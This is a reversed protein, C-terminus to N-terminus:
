YFVKKWTPSEMETFEFSEVVEKKMTHPSHHHEDDDHEHDHEDDELGDESVRDGLLINYTVNADNNRIANASHSSMSQLEMPKFIEQM